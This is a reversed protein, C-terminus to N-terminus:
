SELTSQGRRGVSARGGCDGGVRGVDIGEEGAVSRGHRPSLVLSDVGVHGRRTKVDRLPDAVVGGRLGVQLSASRTEGRNRAGLFTLAGEGRRGAAIGGAREGGACGGAQV